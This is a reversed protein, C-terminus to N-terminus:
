RQEGSCPIQGGIRAHPHAKDYITRLRDASVHTYIQTSSLRAHGLLEQVDRLDAGGDLLHTAFSHRLTHPSVSRGYWLQRAYKTVIRHFDREQLPRGNNSLFLKGKSLGTDLEPRAELYNTLADVAFRGLLAMRQKGGKGRVKVCGGLVDMDDLTVGALEAVRVGTSYLTELIARDRKGFPTDVPPAELLQKVEAVSLFEPLRRAMKPTSVNDAPNLEIHGERLILDFFTRIASLKRAVSRKSVGNTHLDALYARIKLADIEAIPISELSGDPGGFFRDAVFRLFTQVDGAYARVTHKSANRESKLYREFLGLYDMM